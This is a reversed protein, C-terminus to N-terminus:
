RSSSTLRAPREKAAIAGADAAVDSVHQEMLAQAQDPNRDRVALGVLTHYSAAKVSAGPIRLTRRRSELLLENVASVMRGMVPNHAATLLLEHFRIDPELFDRGERELHDQERATAIIPTQDTYNPIDAVIEKAHPGFGAQFAEVSDCFIHCMGIYTAPAGPAGGAMGKDVTYSKCADGMRAKVLPMHKDRYYDHDFRAGPTNPYMVSVKIM